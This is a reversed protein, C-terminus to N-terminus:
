WLEVDMGMWEGAVFMEVPPSIWVVGVIECVCVGVPVVCVCWAWLSVFVVMVVGCMKRGAQLPTPISMVGKTPQSDQLTHM